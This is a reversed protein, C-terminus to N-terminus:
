GEVSDSSRLPFDIRNDNPQQSRAHPRMGVQLGGGSGLVPQYLRTGQYVADSVLRLGRREERM